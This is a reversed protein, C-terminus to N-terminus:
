DINSIRDQRTLNIEEECTNEKESVFYKKPIAKRPEM